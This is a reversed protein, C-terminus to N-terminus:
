IIYVYLVIVICYYDISITTLMLTTLSITAYYETVCIILM